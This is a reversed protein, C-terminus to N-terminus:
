KCDSAEAGEGGSLPLAARPLGGRGCWSGGGGGGGGGGGTAQPGEGHEEGSGSPLEVAPLTRCGRCEGSCPLLEGSLFLGPEGPQM